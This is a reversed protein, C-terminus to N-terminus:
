YKLNTNGVKREGRRNLEDRLPIGIEAILVLIALIISDLYTNSPRTVYALTLGFVIAITVAIAYFYYHSTRWVGILPEKAVGFVSKTPEKAYLKTLVQIETGVTKDETLDYTVKIDFLKQRIIKEFGKMLEMDEVSGTVYNLTQRYVVVSLVSQNSDRSDPTLAFVVNKSSALSPKLVAKIVALQEENRVIKFQWAKLFTSSFVTKLTEFDANCSYTIQQINEEDYDLGILVRVILRQIYGIPLAIVAVFGLTLLTGLVTILTFPDSGTLFFFWIGIIVFAGIEVNLPSVLRKPKFLMSLITCYIIPAFLFGFFVQPYVFSFLNPFSPFTQENILKNMATLEVPNLLAAQFPTWLITWFFLAVPSETNRLKKLFSM